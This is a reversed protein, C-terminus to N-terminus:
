TKSIPKTPLSPMVVVRNGAMPSSNVEPNSATTPLIVKHTVLMTNATTRVQRVTSFAAMSLHDSPTKVGHHDSTTKRNNLLTHNTTKSVTSNSVTAAKSLLTAEKNNVTVM